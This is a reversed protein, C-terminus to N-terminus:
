SRSESDGVFPSAEIDTGSEDRYAMARQMIPDPVFEADLHEASATLIPGDANKIVMRSQSLDVSVDAQEILLAAPDMHEITAKSLRLILDVNTYGSRRWKDTAGAPIGPFGLAVKVAGPGFVVRLLRLQSLVPAEARFYRKVNNPSRLFRSWESM